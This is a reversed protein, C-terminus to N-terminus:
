ILHDCKALNLDYKSTKYDELSKRPVGVPTLSRFRMTESIFAMVFNCNVQDELTPNRDEIVNKVEDRLRKEIKNHTKMLLILWLFTVLSTETSTLILDLLLRAFNSENLLNGIKSNKQLFKKRALLLIDSINKHNEPKKVIKCLSIKIEFNKLIKRVINKFTLYKKGVLYKKALPVFTCMPILYTLSDIVFKWNRIDEDDLKVRNKIIILIIKM